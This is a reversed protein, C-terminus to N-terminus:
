VPALSIWCRGLTGWWRLKFGETQSTSISIPTDKPVSGCGAFGKNYSHLLIIHVAYKTDVVEISYRFSITLVSVIGVSTNHEILLIAAMVNGVTM